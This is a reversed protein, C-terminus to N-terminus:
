LWLIRGFHNIVQNALESFTDPAELDLPLILHTTNNALSNKVRELEPIRRASLIISAGENAFAHALAEGIGSTAGTIWIVKNIYKGAM